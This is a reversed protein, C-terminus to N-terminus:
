EEVEDLGFRQRIVNKFRLEYEEKQYWDYDPKVMQEIFNEAEEFDEFTNLQSVVRNFDNTDEGFLHKVFAIRDNLGFNISGAGLQQNLSGQRSKKTREVPVFDDLGLPDPEKAASPPPAQQSQTQEPEPIFTTEAPPKQETSKIDQPKNEETISPTEVVKPTETQSPIATEKASNQAFEAFHLQKLLQQCQEIHEALQNSEENQLISLCLARLQKRPDDQM